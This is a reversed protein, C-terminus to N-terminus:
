DRTVLFLVGRAITVVVGAIIIILAVKTMKKMGSGHRRRM